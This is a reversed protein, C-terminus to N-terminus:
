DTIVITVTAVNTSSENKINVATFSGVLLLSSGVTWPLVEGNISVLIPQDTQIMLKTGTAIGGMDVAEYGAMSVPLIM